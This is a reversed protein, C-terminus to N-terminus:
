IPERSHRLRVAAALFIGAFVLGAWLGPAALFAGPALHMGPHFPFNGMMSSVADSGGSFRDSLLSFFYSSHFAVKEFIGLALPPLIAWLFPARRAWASVLLLWAYFPAFWLMHATVLHYLLMLLVQHLQLQTWLPAVSLGSGLLVVSSLVLMISQTVVTIVFSLIPLVFVPISAKALVTTLDSVPMSKWFLISRDRREGYLADLSYFISVIFAAGMILGASFDYPQALAERQSAPDLASLTRMTHPLFILVFLFGLLIVGAFALPALYISRYELLERKLSWYFPRTASMTAPAADRENLEPVTNSQPNM